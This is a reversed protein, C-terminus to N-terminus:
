GEEEVVAVEVGWRSQLLHLGSHFNRAGEELTVLVLGNTDAVKLTRGSRQFRLRSVPFLKVGRGFQVYLGKPSLYTDGWPVWNNSDLTEALRETVRPFLRRFLGEMDPDLGSRRREFKFDIFPRRADDSAAVLRYQHGLAIGHVHLPTVSFGLRMVEVDHLTVPKTPWRWLTMGRTYVWLFAPRMRWAVGLIFVGLGAVGLTERWPFALWSRLVGAGLLVTLGALAVFGFDLLSSRRRFLLHGTGEVSTDNQPLSHALLLPLIRANASGVTVTHFPAPRGQVWVQLGADTIAVRSLESRPRRGEDCSFEDSDLTWREGRVPQGAALRQRFALSVQRLLPEIAPQLPDEERSPAFHELRLVMRDQTLTLRRRFAVEVGNRHWPEEDLAISDLTSYAFERPGQSTSVRVSHRDVTLSARSGRPWLGCLLDGLSLFAGAVLYVHFLPHWGEILVLPILALAVAGVFAALPGPRYRPRTPKLEVTVPAFARPQVTDPVPAVAGEPEAPLPLPSPAEFTPVLPREPHAGEQLSARLARRERVQRAGVVLSVGGLGGFLAIFLVGGLQGWLRSGQADEESLLERDLALDVLGEVRHPREPSRTDQRTVVHVRTGSICLEKMGEVLDADHKVRVEHPAQDIRVDWWRSKGYTRARCEVVRAEGEWRPEPARLFFESTLFGAMGLFAVAGLLAQALPLQERFRM